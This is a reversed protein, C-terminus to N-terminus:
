GNMNPPEAWYNEDAQNIGECHCHPAAPDNHQPCEEYHEADPTQQEIDPM